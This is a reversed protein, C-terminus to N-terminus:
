RDGGTQDSGTQDDPIPRGIARGLEDAHETNLPVDQCLDADRLVAGLDGDTNSEAVTTGAPLHADPTADIHQDSVSGGGVLQPDAESDADPDADETDVVRPTGTVQLLLDAPFTAGPTEFRVHGNFPRLDAARLSASVKAMAGGALEGIAHLQTHATFRDPIAFILIPSVNQMTAVWQAFARLKGREYLDVGGVRLHAENAEFNSVTGLLHPHHDLHGSLSSLWAGTDFTSM